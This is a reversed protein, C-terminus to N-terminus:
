QESAVAKTKANSRAPTWTEISWWPSECDPGYTVPRGWSVSRASMFIFERWGFPGTSTATQWLSGPAHCTSFPGDQADDGHGTM